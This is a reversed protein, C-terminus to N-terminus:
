KVFLALTEKFITVPIIFRYMCDGDILEANFTEKLKDWVSSKGSPVIVDLVYHKNYYEVRCVDGGYLLNYSDLIKVCKKRARWYHTIKKFEAKTKEPSDFHETFSRGGFVVLDTFINTCYYVGPLIEMLYNDGIPAIKRRRVEDIIYTSCDFDTLSSM